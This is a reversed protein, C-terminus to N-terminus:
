ILENDDQEIFMLVIDLGELAQNKTVKIKNVEEKIEEPDEIGTVIKVIDEDCMIDEIALKSDINLYKSVSLPDNIPLLNILHQIEKENNSESLDLFEDSITNNYPSPTLIGTKIWSSRISSSKVYDWAQATFTIADMITLPTIPKGSAVSEDYANVRDKTQKTGKLPHISLTKSPEMRWFLGTEDCNYVDNLDWEMLLNQLDNRFQPLDYLPASNAEGPKTISRINYRKKFHSLWGQSGTFNNIDMLRAFDTAKHLLIEGSISLNTGNAQDLWLALSQEIQPFKPTRERKLSAIYSNPNKNLLKDKRKLIDYVTSEGINFQNALEVNKLNPNATKAQCLEIKQALTLSNHKRKNNKVSPLNENM